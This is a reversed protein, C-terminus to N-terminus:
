GAIRSFAKSKEKRLLNVMSCQVPILLLSASTLKETDQTSRPVGCSSNSNILLNRIYFHSTKKSNACWAELIDSPIENIRNREYRNDKKVM